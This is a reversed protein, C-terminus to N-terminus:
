IRAILLLSFACLIVISFGFVKRAWKKEDFNNKSFGKMALFLWWVGLLFMTVTYFAGVTSFFPLTLVVCLFLVLYILIQIKTAKMTKKVPLVPINAKAYDDLRYIAIAFFHPMQWLAMILFLLLAIRDFNNTVTVYGAVISAAGSIGGILTSHTSTRKLWMTYVCVYVFFGIMVTAVTLINTFIYLISFGLIGLSTGYFLASSDEIIGQVLARGKTREMLADIDKDLYNNFVCGSAIVLSLGILGLILLRFDISGPSAIIFGAIYTIANGYIIGPKTLTYYNKFM